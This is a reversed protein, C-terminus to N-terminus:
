DVKNLPGVNNIFLHEGAFKWEKKDIQGTPKGDPGLADVYFYKEDARYLKVTSSENEFSEKYENLTFTFTYKVDNINGEWTGLLPALYDNETESGSGSGTGGTAANTCGVLLALALIFLMTVSIKKMEM